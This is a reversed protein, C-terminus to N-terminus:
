APVAFATAYADGRVATAAPAAAGAETRGTSGRAEDLMASERPPGDFGAGGEDYRAGAVPTAGGCYAFGAGYRSGLGRTAGGDYADGDGYRDGPGLAPEGDDGLTADGYRGGGGDDYEVGPGDDGENREDLGLTADGYREEGVNPPPPPSGRDDGLTEDGDNREAGLEGGTKRELGLTEDGDNRELGLTELGDNREEGLTELGDTPREEEGLTEEGLRDAGETRTLLYSTWTPLINGIFLATAKRV